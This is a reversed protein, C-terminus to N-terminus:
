AEAGAPQPADSGTITRLSPGLEGGAVITCFALVLDRALLVRNHTTSGTPLKGKAENMFEVLAMALAGALDEPSPAATAADVVLATDIKQLKMAVREDRGSGAEQAQTEGIPRDDVQPRVGLM